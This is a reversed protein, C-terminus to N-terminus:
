RITTIHMAEGAYAEACFMFCLPRSSMFSLLPVASAPSLAQRLACPKLVSGDQGARMRLLM